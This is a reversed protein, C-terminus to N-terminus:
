AMTEWILDRQDEALPGAYDWLDYARVVGAAAAGRLRCLVALSLIRAIRPFSPQVLAGASGPPNAALFDPYTQGYADAYDEALDQLPAGASYGLLIRKFRKDFYNRAPLIQAETGQIEPEILRDRAIALDEFNHDLAADWYSPDASPDRPTM